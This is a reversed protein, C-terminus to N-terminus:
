KVPIRERILGELLLLGLALAVFLYFREEYIRIKGGELEKSRTKARLGQFYLVDLDLDGTVSRTYGGGTSAAMQMLGSEVLKSLILNGAADKEFGGEDGSKPIPAGEPAGM